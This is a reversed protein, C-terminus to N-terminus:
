FRVKHWIRGSRLPQTFIIILDPRRVSILYNTQIEFDKLLKQADNELLSEPKNMHSHKFKKCLEWHIMDGLRTVLDHRTKYKEINTQQM